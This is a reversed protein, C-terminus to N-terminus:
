SGPLPLPHGNAGWPTRVDIAHSPVTITQPRGIDVFTVTVNTSGAVALPVPGQGALLAGEALKGIRGAATLTTGRLSINV